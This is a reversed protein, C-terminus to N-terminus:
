YGPFFGAVPRATKLREIDFASRIAPPFENIQEPTLIKGADRMGEVAIDFMKTQVDLVRAMVETRSYSTPLASLYQVLPNLLSDGQATVRRDLATLLRLQDNSLFSLSDKAQLVGHVANFVGNTVRNRIQQPPLRDGARTRGPSLVQEVTQDLFPSGLRLRAELTILFPARVGTRSPRTDGFRPNVTYVYRQATPDFGRVFLLTPDAGAPQGWGQLHSSGHLLEDLGAPVNTLALTIQARNNMRFLEPNFTAVANMTATWPGECSNRAAVSGLQRPLCDATRSPAGALLASMGRQVSTDAATPAFVFARDNVFGDGNIDGNVIPTFPLGSMIRATTAISMVSGIRTSLSATIQHRFDQSGRSWAMDRPDAATSGNFGRTEERVSQYVYTVQWQTFRGLADGPAPYVNFVVQSSRSQLDTRLASASGFASNLRSDHNTLAGSGPVVSAASAFVPRGGEDPLSFGRTGSFNRDVIGQQGLNLSYIGELGFRVLKPILFTNIGLSSRWARQPSFGRDVYWVNPRTTAFPSQASTDACQTPISSTNEAFSSWSPTPVASGVCVIQHVADSSGNALLSPAILTAPVDNRFLGIGGHVNGRPGGFGPIATSGNYGFQRFFGIRPSFDIPSPTYDTRAKFAADVDPNYPAHDLFQNADVRVGYMITARQVPRWDDGISFAQTLASGSANQGVFSRSFSSPRNAALDAISNYVYTGRENPYQDQSFGDERADATM